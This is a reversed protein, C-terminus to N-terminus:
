RRYPKPEEVRGEVIRLHYRGTEAAQLGDDDFYGSYILVAHVGTRSPELHTAGYWYKVGGGGSGYEIEDVEFMQPITENGPAIDHVDLSLYMGAKHGKQTDELNTYIATYRKGGELHISYGRTPMPYVGDRWSVRRDVRDSAQLKGKVGRKGVEMRPWTKSSVPAKDGEDSGVPVPEAVGACALSMALVPLLIHKRSM